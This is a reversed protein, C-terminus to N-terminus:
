TLRRRQLPTWREGPSRFYHAAVYPWPIVILDAAIAALFGAALDSTRGAAQLPLYALPFWLVKYCLQMFVIPLMTLPYRIGLASLISLAAWFSFAAGTIQDWPKRRHVFESWVGSGVLTCNLLYMGRLVYLRLSSVQEAM